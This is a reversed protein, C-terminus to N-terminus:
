KHMGTAINIPMHEDYIPTRYNTANGLNMKGPLM